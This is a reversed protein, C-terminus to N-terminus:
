INSKKHFQSILSLTGQKKVFTTIDRGHSKVFNKGRHQRLFGKFHSPKKLIYDSESLNIVYDMKWQLDIMENMSSMMMKLLSAGGWITAFRNETVKINAPSKTELEKLNRYLYSSRSDVHFYFYDNPNYLLKFIRLVQRLARGHVVFLYAVRIDKESELNETEPPKQAFATSYVNMTLYGGCSYNADGPCKRDCFIDDLKEYPKQNGCFCEISYQLGAFAYGLEACYRICKQPTNEEFKLQSANLIRPEFKDRFCGLHANELAKTDVDYNCFSPLVEPYLESPSKCAIERLDNKCQISKARSIASKADKHLASFRCPENRIESVIPLTKDSLFINTLTYASIIAFVGVIVSWGMIRQNGINSQNKMLKSKLVKSESPSRLNKRSEM